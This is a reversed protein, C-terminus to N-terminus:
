VIMEGVSLTSRYSQALSHELIAVDNGPGAISLCDSRWTIMWPSSGSFHQCMIQYQRPKWCCPGFNGLLSVSPSEASM